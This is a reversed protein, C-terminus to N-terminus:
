VKRLDASPDEILIEHERGGGNMLIKVTKNNILRGVGRNEISLRAVYTGDAAVIDPFVSREHNIFLRYGLHDAIQDYCGQAKWPDLVLINYSESLYTWHYRQIDM